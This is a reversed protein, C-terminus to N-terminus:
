VWGGSGPRTPLSGPGGNLAGLAVMVGGLLAAILVCIVVQWVVVLGARLFTTPLAYKLVVLTGLLGAGLSVAFIGM